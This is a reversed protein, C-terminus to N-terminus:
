DKHADPYNQFLNIRWHKRAWTVIKHEDCQSPWFSKNCIHKVKASIATPTPRIRVHNPSPDWCRPQLTSIKLGVYWKRHMFIMKAYFLTNQTCLDFIPPFNCRKKKYIHPYINPKKSLHVSQQEFNNVLQIRHLGMFFHSIQNRFFFSHDVNVIQKKRQLELIFFILM